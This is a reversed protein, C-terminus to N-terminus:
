YFQYGYKKNLFPIDSSVRKKKVEDCYDRFSSENFLHYPLDELSILKNSPHLKPFHDLVCIHNSREDHFGIGYRSTSTVSFKDMNYMSINKVGRRLLVEAFVVQHTANSLTNFDFKDKNEAIYDFLRYTELLLCALKLQSFAMQNTKLMVLLFIEDFSSSMISDFVPENIFSSHFDAADIKKFSNEKDFTILSCQELTKNYKKKSIEKNDLAFIFSNRFDNMNYTPTRLIKMESPKYNNSKGYYIIDWPTFIKKDDKHIKDKTLIDEIYNKQNHLRAMSHNYYLETIEVGTIVGKYDLIFDPQESKIVSVIKDNLDFVNDLVEWERDDKTKM